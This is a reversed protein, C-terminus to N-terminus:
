AGIKKEVYKATQKYGFATLFKDDLDTKAVIKSAGQALAWAEGMRAIEFLANLNPAWMYIVAVFDQLPPNVNNFAVVYADIQDHSNVNALILYNPNDSRETLWQIWATKDCPFHEEIEDNLAHFMVVDHPTQIRKIM